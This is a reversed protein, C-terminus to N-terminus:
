KGIIFEVAEKLQESFNDPFFHGLGETVLFKCEIGQREFVKQLEMTKEYFPDLDGTIICGKINTKKTHEILSEIAAVDQISPVVAIFGKVNSHESFALEISLKGGQSAGAIILHDVEFQENFKNLSDKVEIIAKEHDDWCYSNFGYPQTSQPFAILYDNRELWFPAFDEVNSGRWHTSVIGTNAQVNGYTVFISKGKYPQNELITQCENMIIQFDPLDQLSSLDPDRTLTNPNWWVGNSLAERLISIAKETEGNKASICARWFCYKEMREPFEIETEDILKHVEDMENRKFANFVQNQLEFFTRKIM